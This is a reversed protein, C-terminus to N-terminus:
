QRYQGTCGGTANSTIPSRQDNMIRRAANLPMQMELFKERLQANGAVDQRVAQRPQDVMADELAGQQSSRRRTSYRRVGLPDIQQRGHQRQALPAFLPRPPRVQLGTSHSARSPRRDRRDHQAGV